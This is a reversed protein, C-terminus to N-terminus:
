PKTAPTLPPVDIRQLETGHPLASVIAAKDGASFGVATMSYGAPRALTQASGGAAPRLDVRNGGDGLLDQWAVLVQAGNSSWRLLYEYPDKRATLTRLRKGDPTRIDIACYGRDCQMVSIERGDRTWEPGFSTPPALQRPAGGTPAVVFVGRGGASEVQADFAISKGDPSWRLAGIAGLRTVRTATGGNAPMTWIDFGPSERSSAFAITKGDPSWRSSWEASPWDTLRTAPGSDVPAIWVDPNGARVSTFSVRKGDPSWAVSGDFGPAGSVFRSEGGTAPVVWIDDDGNKTGSYVIQSGDPSLEAQYVAWDGATLPTPQGDPLPVSFLHPLGLSVSAAVARGDPTWEQGAEAVADDTLRQVDSEGTAVVWLDPQGGRNSSFLIRSGDPSWSAGGDDAIDQTVQRREGSVVDMRWLDGTGTRRSQYLISRNDPSFGRYSLFEFGENTLQRHTKKDRDFLWLTSNGDKTLTYAIWKGDTSPYGYFVSGEVDFLKSRAGDALNYVWMEEGRITGKNYILGSGDPLWANVNENAPSGAVVREAGSDAPVILVDSQGGADRVFGIWKGDPSWRPGTDWVGFSIRRPNRGDADAVFIAAKADILKSFALRGDRAFQFGFVGPGPVLTARSAAAKKASTSDTRGCGALAMVALLGAM